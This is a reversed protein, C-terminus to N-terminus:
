WWIRDISYQNEFDYTHGARVSSVRKDSGSNIRERVNWDTDESGMWRDTETQWIGESYTRFCESRISEEYVDAVLNGITSVSIEAGERLGNSIQSSTNNEMYEASNSEYVWYRQDTENVAGNWQWDTCPCVGYNYYEVSVTDDRVSYRSLDTAVDIQCFYGNGDKPRIEVCLQADDGSISTLDVKYEDYITYFSSDIEGTLRLLREKDGEKMANVADSLLLQENQTLEEYKTFNRRLIFETTGYQNTKTMLCEDGTVDYGKQLIALAEDFNDMAIYTEALSIYTEARKPDIEIAATFAIIAEEYNGESLYRVGLDYQEEWTPTKQTCACLGIVLIAGLFISAVRKM